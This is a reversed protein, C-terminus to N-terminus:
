FFILLLIFCVSDFLFYFVYSVYRIELLIKLSANQKIEIRIGDCFGHSQFSLVGNNEQKRRDIAGDDM